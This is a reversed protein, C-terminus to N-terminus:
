TAVAHRRAEPASFGVADAVSPGFFIGKQIHRPRASLTIYPIGLFSHLDVSEVQLSNCRQQKVAQIVRKLVAYLTKDRDFGFATMRIPGAMFFFTWGTALLEKELQQSTLGHTVVMWSNLHSDADVQFCQPRLADPQILLVGPTIM